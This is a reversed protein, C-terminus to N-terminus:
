RREPNERDYAWRRPNYRIYSRAAYLDQDNHVIEDHYNRQWVCMGPTGRVANIRKTVASKFGCVFTGLSRPPRRLPALGQAGVVTQVSSRIVLIGHVHNPMVTFEDLELEERIRRSREWEEFAIAGFRNLQIDGNAVEGFLCERKCTVITVFYAGPQAYDHGKLRISRRHHRFRDYPM